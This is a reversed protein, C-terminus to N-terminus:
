PEVDFTVDGDGSVDLPRQLPLWSSRWLKVTYRGAPVDQIRYRGAADTLAFYPDRVVVIHGEMEMHINCLVLVEGPEAMTVSRTEGRSYTGLNFAGAVRSPSFVNHQIDDSNTFEVTTGAVIPLVRPAFALNKQDMVVRAPPASHPAPGDTRELYVLTDAATGHLRITGTVTAAEAACAGLLLVSALAATRMRQGGFWRSLKPPTLPWFATALRVTV